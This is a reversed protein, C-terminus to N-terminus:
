RSRRAILEFSNGIFRTLSEGATFTVRVGENEGIVQYGAETPQYSLLAGNAGAQELTAPLKDHQQRYREVHQVATAVSIRLSAQRVATSEPASPTPFAWEPREVYLYVSVFVLVTTCVVLLLRSLGRHRRRAEAALRKLEREEAATKLVTDFAELLAKKQPTATATATPAPTADQSM